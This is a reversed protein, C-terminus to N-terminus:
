VGWSGVNPIRAPGFLQHILGATYSQPKSFNIVLAIPLEGVTMAKPVMMGVTIGAVTYSAHASHVGSATRMAFGGSRAVIWRFRIASEGTVSCDGIGFTYNSALSYPKNGLLYVNAEGQTTSSYGVGINESQAGATTHARVECGLIVRNELWYYLNPGGLPVKRLEVLQVDNATAGTYSQAIQGIAWGPAKNDITFVQAGSAGSSYRVYDGEKGSTDSIALYFLGERKVPIANDIDPAAYDTAGAANTSFVSDSVGVLWQAHWNASMPLVKSDRCGLVKISIPDTNRGMVLVDGGAIDTSAKPILHVVKGESGYNERPQSM